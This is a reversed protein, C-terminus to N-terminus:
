YGPFYPPFMMLLSDQGDQSVCKVDKQLNSYSWGVGWFDFM